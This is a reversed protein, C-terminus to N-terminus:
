SDLAAEEGNTTSPTTAQDTRSRLGDWVISLLQPAIDGASPQTGSGFRWDLSIFLCMGFVARFALNADFERHSWEGLNQDIRETMLALAPEFRERYFREGRDADGLVAVLLPAIDRMGELLDRVFIESVARVGADGSAPAFARIVAEELPAAVAEEFIQEKTTFYRYLIADNVDAAAAIKRVTTGDFGSRM